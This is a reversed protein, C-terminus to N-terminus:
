SMAERLTIGWESMRTSIVSSDVEVTVDYAATETLVIKGVDEGMATKITSLMAAPGSVRIRSAEGSKVIDGLQLIIAEVSVKRAPSM